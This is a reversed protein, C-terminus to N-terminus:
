KVQSARCPKLKIGVSSTNNLTNTDVQGLGSLSATNIKTGCAAQPVKMVIEIQTQGGAPLSPIMYSGTIPDYSEQLNQTTHSMYLLGTPVTDLINVNTANNNGINTVRVRWTINRDFLSLSSDILEKTVKIDVPIPESDVPGTHPKVSINDVYMNAEDFSYMVLYQYDDNPTFIIELHTWDNNPDNNPIVQSVIIQLPNITYDFVGPLENSHDLGTMVTYSTPNQSVSLVDASFKYQQGAILPTELRTKAAEYPTVMRMLRDSGDPTTVSCGLFWASCDFPINFWNSITPANIDPVDPTGFENCWWPIKHGADYQPRDCVMEVFSTGGFFSHHTLVDDEFAGNCVHEDPDNACPVFAIHSENSIRNSDSDVNDYALIRAGTTNGPLLKVSKAGNADPLVAGACDPSAYYVVNDGAELSIVRSTNM